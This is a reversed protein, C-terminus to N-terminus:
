RAANCHVSASSLGPSGISTSCQSVRLSVARQYAGLSCRLAWAQRAANLSLRNAGDALGPNEYLWPAEQWFGIHCIEYSGHESM